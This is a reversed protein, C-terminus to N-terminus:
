RRGKDNKQWCLDFFAPLDNRFTTTRIGLSLIPGSVPTPNARSRACVIAFDRLLDELFTSGYEEQTGQKVREM